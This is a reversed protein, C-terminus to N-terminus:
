QICQLCEPGVACVQWGPLPVFVGGEEARGGSAVVPKNTGVQYVDSREEADGIGLVDGLVEDARELSPTGALVVV